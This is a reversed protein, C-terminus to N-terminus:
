EPAILGSAQDDQAVERDSHGDGNRDHYTCESVRLTSRRLSKPFRRGSSQNSRVSSRYSCELAEGADLRGCRASLIAFERILASTLHM